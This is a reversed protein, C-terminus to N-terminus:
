LIRKSLFVADDRSGGLRLGYCMKLRGPKAHAALVKHKVRPKAAASNEHKTGLLDQAVMPRAGARGQSAPSM